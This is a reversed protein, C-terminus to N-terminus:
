SAPSSSRRWAPPRGDTTAGRRRRRGRGARKREGERARGEPPRPRHFRPRACRPRRGVHPRDLRGRHRHGEHPQRDDAGARPLPARQRHGRRHREQPFRRGGNGGLGDVHVIKIGEIKELPRVSERVIGEIRDLLAHRIRSARAGDSLVNDAENAQRQGEADVKYRKAAAEIRILQADAEARASIRQAEAFSTAADKEAEAKATLRLREREADRAASVLDVLKRREAIERERATFAQEEALIAKARAVESETIAASREKTKAAIEIAKEIEAIEM